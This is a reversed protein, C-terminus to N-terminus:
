NELTVTWDGPEFIEFEFKVNYSITHLKNMSTYMIKISVPFVIYDFGVSEGVKTDNGSTTSMNFNTISKNRVGNQFIDILVRDKTTNNKQFTFRDVGDKYSVYPNRPKPGTYADNQWLGDQISDRGNLKITLKGTGHRMGGAWEGTYVNGNAWTYKGYGNPFGKVFQGEYRDTGVAVGKGNAFGNKCKGEYTGAIEPKLVKCNEQSFLVLTCFTFLTVLGFRLNNKM